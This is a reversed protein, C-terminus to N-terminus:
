RMSRHDEPTFAWTPIQLVLVVFYGAAVTLRDARGPLTGTPCAHILHILVGLPLAAIVTGIVVLEPLGSNAFFAVIITAGCGTMLAGLRNLPRRMWALVGSVVYIAGVAPFFYAVPVNQLPGRALLSESLGALALLAAGLFFVPWRASGNAVRTWTGAAIVNTM